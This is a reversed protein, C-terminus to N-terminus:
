NTAFPLGGPIIREPIYEAMCDQGAAAGSNYGATNATWFSTDKTEYAQHHAASPWTGAATEFTWGPAFLGVSTGANACAGVAAVA